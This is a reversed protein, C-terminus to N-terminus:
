VFSQDAMVTLCHQQKVSPILHSAVHEQTQFLAKAKFHRYIILWNLTQALPMRFLSSYFSSLSLSLFICFQFLWILFWYSLAFGETSLINIFSSAWVLERMWLGAFMKCVSIQVVRTCPLLTNTCTSSKPYTSPEFHKLPRKPFHCLVAWPWISLSNSKLDWFYLETFERVFVEEETAFVGSNLM